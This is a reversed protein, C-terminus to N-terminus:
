PESGNQTLKQLFHSTEQKSKGKRGMGKRKKTVAIPFYAGTGAYIRAFCSLGNILPHQM